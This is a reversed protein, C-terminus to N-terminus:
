KVRCVPLFTLDPQWANARVVRFRHDSRVRVLKLMALAAAQFRVITIDRPSAVIAVHCQILAILQPVVFFAVVPLCTKFSRDQL